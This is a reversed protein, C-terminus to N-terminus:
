LKPQYNTQQKLELYKQWIIIIVLIDIITIATLTASFHSTLRIFQAIVAGSFLAMSLPYAWRKNQYLLITLILKILGHSLLFFVIFTKTDTSLNDAWTITWNAIIDGPDELLEKATLIAAFYKLGELSTVWVFIGAVTEILGDIGKVALSVYFPLNIYTKKNIM